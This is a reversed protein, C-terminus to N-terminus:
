KLTKKERDKLSVDCGATYLEAASWSIVTVIPSTNSVPSLATSSIGNLSVMHFGLV